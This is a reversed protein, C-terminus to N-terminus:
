GRIGERAIGLGGESYLQEPREELDRLTELVMKGPLVETQNMM